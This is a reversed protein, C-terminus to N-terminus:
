NYIKAIECMAYINKVIQEPENKNISSEFAKELKDNLRNLRKLEEELKAQIYKDM